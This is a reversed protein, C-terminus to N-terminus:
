LICLWPLLICRMGAGDSCDEWVLGHLLARAGGSYSPCATAIQSALAKATSASRMRPWVQVDPDVRHLCLTSRGASSGVNKKLAAYREQVLIHGWFGMRIDPRIGPHGKLLGLDELPRM